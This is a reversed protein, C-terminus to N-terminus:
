LDELSETFDFIREYFNNQLKKLPDIIHVMSDFLKIRQGYISYIESSNYGFHKSFDIGCIKDLIASELQHLANNIESKNGNWSITMSISKLNKSPSMVFEDPNILRIGILSIYDKISQDM